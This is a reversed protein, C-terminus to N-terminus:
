CPGRRSRDFVGTGLTPELERVSRSVAPQSLNLVEAVAMFSGARAAEFFCRLQRLRIKVLFNEPASM